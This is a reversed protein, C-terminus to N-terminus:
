YRFWNIKKFYILHLLPYILISALYEVLLDLTFYNGKTYISLAAANLGYVIALSLMLVIWVVNFRQQVLGRTNSIALLSILIYSFASIGILFSGLFDEILGLVLLVLQNPRTEKFISFFFITMFIFAPKIIIIKNLGVPLHAIIIFLFILLHVKNKMFIKKFWEM